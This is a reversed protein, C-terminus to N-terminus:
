DGIALVKGSTSSEVTFVSNGTREKMWAGWASLMATRANKDLDQWFKTDVRITNPRVGIFKVVGTTRQRDVLQNANVVNPHSKPPDGPGTERHSVRERKSHRSEDGSQGVPSLVGALGLGIGIAVSLSMELSAPKPRRLPHEHSPDRIGKM